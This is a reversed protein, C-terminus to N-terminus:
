AVFGKSALEAEVRHLYGADPYGFPNGDTSERVTKLHVDAFVIRDHENRTLSHGLKFLHGRRWCEPLM